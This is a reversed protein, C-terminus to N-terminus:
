GVALQDREDALEVEIRVDRDHVRVAGADCDQLGVWRRVHARGPIALPIRTLQQYCAIGAENGSNAFALGGTVPTCPRANALEPLVAQM